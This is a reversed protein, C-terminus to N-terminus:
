GSMERLACQLSQMLYTQLVLTKKRLTSAEGCCFKFDDCSKSPTPTGLPECRVGADESHVCNHQGLPNAPCSALRAETGVCQVNDLWIQGTGQGFLARVIATNGSVHLLLVIVHLKTRKQM